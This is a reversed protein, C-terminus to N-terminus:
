QTRRWLRQGYIRDLVCYFKLWDKAGAQLAFHICNRPSLLCFCHCDTAATTLPHASPQDRDPVTTIQLLLLSRRSTNGGEHQMRILCPSLPM